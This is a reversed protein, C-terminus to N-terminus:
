AANPDPTKWVAAKRLSWVMVAFGTVILVDAWNFIGTRFPGLNITAFDTVLGNRFLRDLLNSTGGALILALGLFRTRGMRASSTLYVLLGALGLAVAFNFAAFRASEPLQAGLSLFGGPNEALRLELLGGSFSVSSLQSLRTRAVHKATQDCGVVCTLLFLLCIWRLTRSLTM